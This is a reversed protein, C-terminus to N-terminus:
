IQHRLPKTPRDSMGSLAYHGQRAYTSFILHRSNLMKTCLIFINDARRMAIRSTACKGVIRRCRESQPRRHLRSLTGDLPHMCAHTKPVSSSESSSRWHLMTQSSACMSSLGMFLKFAYLAAPIHHSNDLTHPSLASAVTLERHQICLQTRLLRHSAYTPNLMDEKTESPCSTWDLFIYGSSIATSRHYPM